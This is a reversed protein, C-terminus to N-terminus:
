NHIWWSKKKRERERGRKTDGYKHRYLSIYLCEQVLTEIWTTSETTSRRDIFRDHEREDKAKYGCYSSTGHSLARAMPVSERM